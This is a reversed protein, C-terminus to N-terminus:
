LEQRWICYCHGSLVFIDDMFQRAGSLSSRYYPTQGLFLRSPHCQRARRNPNTHYSSILYSSFCDYMIPNQGVGVNFQELRRQLDNINNLRQTAVNQQDSSKCQSLDFVVIDINNLAFLKTRLADFRLQAGDVM